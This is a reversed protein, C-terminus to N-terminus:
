KALARVQDELGAVQASLSVKLGVFTAIAIAFVGVAIWGAPNRRGKRIQPEDPPEGAPSLERAKEVRRELEGRLSEILRLLEVDGGQVAYRGQFGFLLCLYYVRLATMQGANGRLADLRRFFGEGALNEHFYLIQLASTMWYSRMPEPKSLAIEDAFAVLAYVIDGAERESVDSRRLKERVGEILGRIRAHVADPPPLPGQYDRIQLLANFCDATAETIQDM